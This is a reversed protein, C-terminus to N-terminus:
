WPLRGEEAHLQGTPADAPLTALRVAVAAGQAPTRPADWGGMDTACNGPDAANVLIGESRLENALMVTVMNVAAKSTNYGTTFVTSMRSEPDGVRTMSSLETSLNVVRAAEARRLLPLMAQATAVLGLVNTEFGARLSEISVASVPGDGEPIIAANNVLVDLRGYQQEIWEAAQRASTEDTVEVRVAAAEGGDAALEKVVTEARALDRGGVLVIWGLEGFQRAIERGIGKTAGTVLVIKQQTM